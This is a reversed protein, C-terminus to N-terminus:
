FTSPIQALLVSFFGDAVFFLMTCVVIFVVTIKAIRITEAETPWTINKFEHIAGAFYAQLANM